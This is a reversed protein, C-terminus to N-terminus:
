GDTEEGFLRSLPKAINQTWWSDGVAEGEPSWDAKDPVNALGLATTTASDLLGTTKLRTLRQMQQIAVFLEENCDAGAEGKYHGRRKLARQAERLLYRRGNESYNAYESHLFMEDFTWFGNPPTGVKPQAAVVTAEVSKLEFDDGEDEAPGAAVSPTLKIVGINVKQGPRVNFELMRTEFGDLVINAQYRGSELGGFRAPAIQTVDAVTVRAGQPYTQVAWEGPRTGWWWAFLGACAAVAAATALRQRWVTKASPPAVTQPLVTPPPTEEKTTIVIPRADKSSAIGLRVALENASQPRDCPDKELCSAIAQEWEPTIEDAANVKLEERRERMLPAKKATVQAIVDGRYFPPKGTLLEFLTAGLAYIDDTPYPRDGMAQQPSMYLMTGSTSANGFSVRTMTETMSRAIGFDTIKVRSEHNVMINAPKIDRHIIQRQSHAYDLADCIERVWPSIEALCFVKQPKSLRMEALSKGNVFEMSIAAAEDDDVFDYIRVINPHALELGRRTEDKLEALATPDTGIIDPLFKLAVTRSLKTDEALWVVGMGGRGLVHLLRYRNFVITGAGPMTIKPPEVPTGGVTFKVTADLALDRKSLQ